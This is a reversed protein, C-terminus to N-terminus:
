KYHPMLNKCICLPVQDEQCMSKMKDEWNKYWPNKFLILLMLWFSSLQLGTKNIYNLAGEM